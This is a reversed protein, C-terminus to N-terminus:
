QECPSWRIADFVKSFKVFSADLSTSVSNTREFNVDSILNEEEIVHILLTYVQNSNIYFISLCSDFQNGVRNTSTRYIAFM